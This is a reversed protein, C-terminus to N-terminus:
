REIRMALRDTLEKYRNRVTVEAAGAVEGVGRQTRRENSLISFIYIAGATRIPKHRVSASPRPRGPHLRLRAGAKL